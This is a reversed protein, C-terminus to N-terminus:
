CPGLYDISQGAGAAFCSNSYTVGDCGCVPDYILPCIVPITMCMGTGNCDGLAKDCFEGMPCNSNDTCGGVACQGLTDVSVGAAAAFCSNSYTMGDCGCVPDFVGPCFMPMVACMGTGTCDGVAKDCFEGTPCNSNDTCGVMVGPCGALPGACDLMDATPDTGCVNPPPISGPAGGFLEDLLAVADAINKSGDDNVDMADMCPSAGNNFLHELTAIADAINVSGDGNADGRIFTWQAFAPASILTLTLAVLVVRLRKM